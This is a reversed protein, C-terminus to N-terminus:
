LVFLASLGGKVCTSRSASFTPRLLHGGSTLEASDSSRHTGDKQSSVVYVIGLFYCGNRLIKTALAGRIGAEIDAEGRREPPPAASSAVGANIDEYRLPIEGPLLQACIAECENHHEQPRRVPREAATIIVLHGVTEPANERGM